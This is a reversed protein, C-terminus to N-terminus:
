SPFVTTPFDTMPRWFIIYFHFIKSLWSCKIWFVNIKADFHRKKPRPVIWPQDPIMESFVDFIWIKMSIKVNKQPVKGKRELDKRPGISSVSLWSLARIYNEFKTQANRSEHARDILLITDFHWFWSDARLRWFWGFAGCLPLHLLTNRVM